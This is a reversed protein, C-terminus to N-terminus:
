LFSSYDGYVTLHCLIKMHISERKEKKKNIDIQFARLQQPPLSTGCFKKM